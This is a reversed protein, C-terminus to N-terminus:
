RLALLHEDREECADVGPAQGLAATETEAQGDRAVDECSVTTLNLKSRDTNPDAELIRVTV